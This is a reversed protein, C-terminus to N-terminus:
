GRNVIQFSGNDNRIVCSTPTLSPLVVTRAVQAARAVGSPCPPISVPAYGRDAMCQQEVGARLPKHVDVTYIDGPIYYGRRTTCTGAADCVRQGPVYRAPSRRVQTNVPVDRLASVACARTDREMRDVTVGAKHYITLPACGTLILFAIIPVPRMCTNQRMRQRPAIPSM